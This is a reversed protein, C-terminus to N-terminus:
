VLAEAAPIVHLTGELAPDEAVRDALDQAALAQSTFSDGLAQNDLMQAVVYSDGTVTLRQDAPERLTRQAAALASRAVSSGGMFHNFLTGNYNVFSAPPQDPKSVTDIVSQEYRASRRVARQSAMAVGDPSLELGAHQREFARRALKAADDMNQFQALAFMEEADSLKALGTDAPNVAVKSVDAAAESGVKDIQIDLPVARQRVFLTGLPHLVLEAEGEPLARLTVLAGLRSSRIL